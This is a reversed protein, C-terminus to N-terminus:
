QDFFRGAARGGAVFRAVDDGPHGDHARAASIPHPRGPLGARSPRVRSQQPQPLRHCGHDAGAIAGGAGAVLGAGPDAPRGADVRAAWLPRVARWVAAFVPEGRRAGHAAPQDDGAAGRVRPQHGAPLSLHRADAYQAGPTLVPHRWLHAPRTCSHQRRFQVNAEVMMGPLSRILCAAMGSRILSLM